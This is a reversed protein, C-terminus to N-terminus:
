SLPESNRWIIANAIMVCTFALVVGGAAIPGAAPGILDMASGTVSSGVASGIAYALTFAASGSVLAGGTFRDGLMTLACTFLASSAAGMLAFASLVGFESPIFPIAVFSVGAILGSCIAVSQRSTNDLLWGILPQFLAMPLALVTISVAAFSASHGTRVFYVPMESIAAVDAFAFAGVMAILLPANRFFGFLEGPTGQEPLTRAHRGLLFSLFAVLAVYIALSAFAVGNHTGFFLIALPGAAFGGCLGMGYVGSVRGRLRNPCATNLWAESLIFILSTCFGLAFRAVFWIWSPDFTAFTALSSACGILGLIILYDGRILHTLPGVALTAVALGAAYAGSNLGAITPSVGRQELVLSILPFTLGQAIAFATVGAIATAIAAVDPAFDARETQYSPAAAAIFATDHRGPALEEFLLRPRAQWVRMGGLVNSTHEAIESVIRCLEAGTGSVSKVAVPLCMEAATRELETENGARHSASLGAPALMERQRFEDSGDQASDSHSAALDFYHCLERVTGKRRSFCVIGAIDHVTRLRSCVRKLEDFDNTDVQIADVNEAALYVYQSPDVTLAIPHLGLRRAAQVYLLGDALSGEVLVLARLATPTSRNKPNM